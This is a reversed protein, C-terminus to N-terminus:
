RTLSVSVTFICPLDEYDRETQFVSNETRSVFCIYKTINTSGFVESRAVFAFHRLSEARRHIYIYIYICIYMYIHININIYIYTYIYM